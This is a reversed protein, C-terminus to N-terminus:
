GYCRIQESAGKAANQGGKELYRQHYLEALYFPVDQGDVLEVVVDKGFRTNADGISKAALSKQEENM